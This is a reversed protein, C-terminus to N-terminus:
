SVPRGSPPKGSMRARLWRAAHPVQVLLVAFALALLVPWALLSWPLSPGRLDLDGEPYELMKATWRATPVDATRALDALAADFAFGPEAHLFQPEVGVARARATIGARGDTAAARGPVLLRDVEARARDLPTRPRVALGHATTVPADGVAVTRAAFSQGGYPDFASALELEGVGDTLLVGIRPRDWRFGANLLAVADGAALGSRPLPGATPRHHRWGIREAARAAAEPGALRDLLHLAGDIGSLVGATSILDGDDVWRVGDQWRVQPYRERLGDLRFWHSTATRGDLLGASGVVGAGYCVSLVLPAPRSRLWDRVPRNSPEDVDPMAPVVVAALRTGAAALLGDLQDLRVQPVVDLGGTLPVPGTAPGVTLVNVADSSALADFPGLVDTVEAGRAGVLVAVTPRAPDLVPAPSVVAALAPPVDVAPAYPATVGTAIGAAGIAGTAAVAVLVALVHGAIRVLRHGVASRM